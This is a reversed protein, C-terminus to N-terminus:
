CRLPPNPRAVSGHDRPPLAAPAATSLHIWRQPAPEDTGSANAGAGIIAVVARFGYTPGGGCLARVRAIGGCAPRHGSAVIFMRRSATTEFPAGVSATLLLLSLLCRLKEARRFSHIM